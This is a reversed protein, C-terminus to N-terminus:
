KRWAEARAAWLSHSHNSHAFDDIIQVLATGDNTRKYRCVGRWYIAQAASRPEPFRRVIEDYIPEAKDWEKRVFHPRALGLRLQM